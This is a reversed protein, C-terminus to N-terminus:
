EAFDCVMEFRLPKGDFEVSVELLSNDNLRKLTFPTWECHSGVIKGLFTKQEDFRVKEVNITTEEETM